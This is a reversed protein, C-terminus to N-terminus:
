HIAVLEFTDVYVREVNDPNNSAWVFAFQGNAAPRYQLPDPLSFWQWVGQEVAAVNVTIGACLDGSYDANLYAYGFRFAPGQDGKRAVKVRVRLQYRRGTNEAEKLPDTVDWRIAQGLTWERDATQYVCSGELATNDPVVSFTRHSNSLFAAVGRQTDAAAPETPSSKWSLLAQIKPYFEKELQEGPPGYFESLHTVGAAQSVELFRRGATRLAEPTARQPRAVVRGFERELMLYWISLRVVAVRQKEEVAEAQAEARELLADARALFDDDYVVGGTWSADNWKLPKNQRDFYDHLFRVYELVGEGGRGYYLRCFEEMTKQGDTDPRWLCQALLYHRVESLEGGPTQTSQAYTSSSFASTTIWFGSTRFPNSTPM